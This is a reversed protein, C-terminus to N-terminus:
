ANSLFEVLDIYNKQNIGHGFMYERFTFYCSLDYLLDAGKKGWEIPIIADDTGHSIFFRLQNLKKRDKPIDNLLKEEPYASICAIKSFLHPNKFALAYALIGGQSFGCLSINGDKIGYKKQIEVFANLLANLSEVAQEKHFYEEPHNFNIDYWAYGGSMEVPFRGRFSVHLIDKPLDQTLALLDQENSGYGHIYFIARTNETITEPAQVSYFLSM